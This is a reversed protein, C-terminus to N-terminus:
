KINFLTSNELIATNYLLLVDDGPRIEILQPLLQAYIYRLDILIIEAYDGGAALLPAVASGFSDRFLLLRRDSAANPNVIKGLSVPGELFTNYPDIGSFQATDYIPKEEFELTKENLVYYQCGDLTPSTLYTLTDPALSLASQGYYVGWFPSLTHATMGALDPATVGLGACLAATADTLKAQDWHLDTRYYDDIDLAGFLDIETYGDMGERLIARFEDYDYAPYGNAAALFYNKDPIVSYYLNCGTLYKDRLIGFKETLQRLSTEPLTASYESASGNVVYINHNDKQRLVNFMFSAKLQRFSDRGIFHDSLYDEIGTMFKTNKVSEVTMTPFAALKRRESKSVDGADYFLNAVAFGVLILAFVGITLWDRLKTKM